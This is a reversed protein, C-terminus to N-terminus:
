TMKILDPESAHCAFIIPSPKQIDNVRFLQQKKGNEQKEKVRVAEAM